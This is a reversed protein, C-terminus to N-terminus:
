GICRQRIQLQNGKEQGNILSNNQRLIEHLINCVGETCISVTGAREKVKERRGTLVIKHIKEIMGPTTVEFSMDVVHNMTPVQEVWRKITTNSPSSDGLTSNLKKKIDTKTLGKFFFFIFAARIELKEMTSFNSSINIKVFQKSFLLCCISKFNILYSSLSLIM